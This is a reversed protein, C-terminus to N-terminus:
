KVISTFVIFFFTIFGGVSFLPGLIDFVGLWMAVIFSGALLAITYTISDFAAKIKGM